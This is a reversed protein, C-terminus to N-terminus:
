GYSPFVLWRPGDQTPTLGLASLAATLKADWGKAAPETAMAGLDLTMAESWEVSRESGAAVLMWGPYDDGGAAAVEVGVVADAARKRDFYGDAHWNTETFGGVRELLLTEVATVFDTEDDDTEDDEDYEEDRDDEDDSGPLWPLKPSGYEGREACRFDEETGLDYGYALHARSSSGM